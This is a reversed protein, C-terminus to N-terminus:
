GDGSTLGTLFQMKIFYLFTTQLLDDDLIFDIKLLDLQYTLMQHFHSPIELLTLLILVRYHVICQGSM